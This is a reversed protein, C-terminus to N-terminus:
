KQPVYAEIGLREFSQGSNYLKLAMDLLPLLMVAGSGEGLRLSAHIPAELGITDLIIRGAPEASVHSALMAKESAPCLRFACLAAAASIMGDIVAGIGSAAAGLYAGCMAALDLGGVRALIDVPDASDPHNRQLAAAIVERKRRLGEDSLGAGRGTVREVPLKLLAATVASATSTNGIGMEGVLLLDTGKGALAVALEAGAQMAKLCEERSMAPGCSIDGTGNRIRRDLVGPYGVFDRIGVDVPLVPCDASAALPSVSSRNEALAVAVKATVDSGCQTIGRVTVGNDACFVLLGPRLQSLEASGRLAALKAVSEELLGLSGLPKALHDWRRKAETRAGEDPPRIRRILNEIHGITEM